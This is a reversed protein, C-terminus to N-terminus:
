APPPVGSEDQLAYEIAQGADMAQGQAWTAVFRAEGLATRAARMEREYENTDAAARPISLM